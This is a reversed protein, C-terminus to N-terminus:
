AWFLLGLVLVIFGLVTFTQAYPGAKPWQKVIPPTFLLAIFFVAAAIILLVEALTLSSTVLVAILSTM